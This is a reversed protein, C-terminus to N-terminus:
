PLPLAEGKLETPELSLTRAQSGLLSPTRSVRTTGLVEHGEKHGRLTVLGLRALVTLSSFAM